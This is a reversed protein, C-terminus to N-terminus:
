APNEQQREAMLEWLRNPSLPIELIEIGRAPLDLADELAQAFLPGVPIAGAEGVGKVGLENTTSPTTTHDLRMRPIDPATPILYDALTGNLLQGESDFVQQEFFANGIGQAVGGHIQGEVILPNIVTGCDHVVAYDHITIEFTEPDVEVIMAHAGSATTGMEPGFYSTAELGPETGPAVAGRMPNAKRALDGIPIAENTGRRRALGDALDIDEGSCNMLSAALAITKQRVIVAAAHIANGAVVAGRSAFTGAGWYFKDTDGSTLEVDRGDVGLQDAVLQAFATYHGQGQTGIGTAVSIRGNSQVQVHAGEYPGIGTGEVYAVIGIGVCRGSRRLDPQKDAIFQEYGIMEAVRDLGPLYDGSDYTLETFDQFIIGHNVPFQEPRLFNRRRIELRDLGLEKAALDILREIVFVGPQRGAGRFPSVIPLNTYVAKFTSDFNAIDYPGFLSCQSNIPVTLGYPNYAGSDHLFDCKLGLIRGDADVAIEADHIQGREQVTALFHEGRDEVWKVAGALERAAWPILIEEPYYMLVKVGFGGGVFPAIVRLDREGLGLRDALATRLSTPAQTSAWVTLHATLADYNAAVCRTEMPQAMGHEYTLRRAIVKHANAAAAAYDGKTQHAIAAVNGAIHDHVRPADPAAARELDAAVPLPEYDVLIEALADEALYRSEAVVMAVPEGAYRVKGTALPTHTAENFILDPVPAPPVVLPSPRCVTGLDAATYVAVVGPCARAASTDIRGLKAHAYPSRLFAAHLAGPLAVDDVFQARGRLLVPDENRTLPKGLLKRAGAAPKIPNM